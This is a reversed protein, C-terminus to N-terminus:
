SIRNGFVTNDILLGVMEKIGDEFYKHISDPDHIVFYTCSHDVVLYFLIKNVM